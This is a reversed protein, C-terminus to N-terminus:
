RPKYAESFLKFVIIKVVWRIFTKAYSAGSLYMGLIFTLHSMLYMFPGGVVIILPRHLYAAVIGLMAIVPWGIAYSIAIIFLGALEKATPKQRFKSLDANDKLATQVFHIRLIRKILRNNMLNDSIICM